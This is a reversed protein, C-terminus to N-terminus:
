TRKLTIEYYGQANAKLTFPMLLGSISNKVLYPPLLGLILRSLMPYKFYGRALFQFKGLNPMIAQSIDKVETAKFGVHSAIQLFDDIILPKGVAMSTEVLKAATKLDPDLSDFGSKRFGDFLVFEGGPRLIRYAESLALEM